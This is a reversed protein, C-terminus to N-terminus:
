KIIAATELLRDEFRFETKDLLWKCLNSLELRFETKDLPWKCLNSLVFVSFEWETLELRWHGDKSIKLNEEEGEGEGKKEKTSNPSTIFSTSFARHGRIPRQNPHQGPNKLKRMPDM